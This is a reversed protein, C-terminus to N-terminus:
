NKFNKHHNPANEPYATVKEIDKKKFKQFGTAHFRFVEIRNLILSCLKTMCILDLNLDLPLLNM